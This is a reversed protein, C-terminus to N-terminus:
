KIDEWEADVIQPEPKVSSRSEGASSRNGSYERIDEFEVYEGVDKTFIKGGKRATKRASSYRAQRKEYQDNRGDYSTGGFPDAGFADRMRKRMQRQVLWMAFRSFLRALMGGFAWFFFIITFFIALFTM